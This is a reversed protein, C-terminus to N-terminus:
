RVFIQLNSAPAPPTGGSVNDLVLVWDDFGSSNNGPPSFQRTGTNAFPSGSITSYVGNTPDYWRARVSGSIATMDVTISGSHAPPVYAVLLSGAPTAAAAVYDGGSTSGAGATIQTKMGGLGSPVLQFWPMSNIFSNLRGMDRSGQTNLHNKWNTDSFPWVYGNGSIYGGITSLWGWWQFRRVPQTASGNVSNGDPGEEDYPEELLFAPEVPSYGYARRGLAAVDGSWSYVGNLTMASGFAAQDTAIMGSDWEASFFISQQQPVSKLGTLLGNEASQQASTFSGMDGGMM